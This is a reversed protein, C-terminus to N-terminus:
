PDEKMAAWAPCTNNPDDPDWAGCGVCMAPEDDQRVIIHATM